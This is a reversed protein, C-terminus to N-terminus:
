KSLFQSKENGTGINYNFLATDVPALRRETIENDPYDYDPEADRPAYQERPAPRQPRARPRQPAPARYAPQPPPAYEVPAPRAPQPPPRYAQQPAPAPRYAPEPQPRYAQPAPAPPPPRYAPQPPPNYAPQPPPRYAPQPPPPPAESRRPAPQPAPGSAAARSVAESAGDGEVKFGDKGATYKVIRQQGSADIYGYAGKVTGDPLRTEERFSQGDNGKGTDYGFKYDGALETGINVYHVSAPKHVVANRPPPGVSRPPPGINRPAPQYAGPDDEYELPIAEERPPPGRHRPAYQCFVVSLISLM